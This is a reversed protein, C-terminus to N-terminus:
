SLDQIDCVKIYEGKKYLTAERFLPFRMIRYPDLKRIVPDANMSPQSTWLVIEYYQSLYRIFYDLGPRKAIRWGEKRSWESHMLLDDLGLVLTFPARFTPDPDEDPLLKEFAPDRYYGLLDSMRAFVRNYFSGFGWGNPADPHRREEKTSDWNRGLLVAGGLFGAAIIAYVTNAIRNSKRELSSVYPSQPFDGRSRRKGGSSTSSQSPDETLKLSENETAKSGAQGLETDLTSPIGQTLDPIPETPRSSSDTSAQSIQAAKSADIQPDKLNNEANSDISANFGNQEGLFDQSGRPLRTGAESMGAGIGAGTSSPPTNEQSSPSTHLEDQAESFEPSSESQNLKEPRPSRDYPQSTQRLQAFRSPPAAAPPVYGGPPLKTRKDRSYWRRRPSWLQTIPRAPSFVLAKSQRLLPLPARRMM